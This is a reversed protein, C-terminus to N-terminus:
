AQIYPLASHSKLIWPVRISYLGAIFDQVRLFDEENPTIQPLDHLYLTALGNYRNGSKAGDSVLFSEEWTEALGTPRIIPICHHHAIETTHASSTLSTIFPTLIWSQRYAELILRNPSSDLDVPINSSLSMYFVDQERLQASKHSTIQLRQGRLDGEPVLHRIPARYSYQHCRWGLLDSFRVPTLSQHWYDTGINPM